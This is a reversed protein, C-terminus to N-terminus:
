TLELIAEKFSIFSYQESELVYETLWKYWKRIDQYGDCFQNDHFLITIYKLGRGKCEELIELTRKKADEFRQPLYGDMITLPFEWMEGVQYPDKRCGCNMKDFETTDFAYGTKSLNEFTKDNSRVYHMRIGCPAFGATQKFTDYEKKMGDFDQYEIGHVGTAFGRNHVKLIVAKAEEPKYSMGLGQNMGFFFTSPIGHAEDYDMLTDLHHITKRFCSTNRLWWEKCTIEKKLLEITNRVWMKPYILDRFWHDKAFLHDVDHSIIVKIPCSKEPMMIECDKQKINRLTM